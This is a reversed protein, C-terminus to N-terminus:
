CLFPAKKEWLQFPLPMHGCPLGKKEAAERTTAGLSPQSPFEASLAQSCPAASIQATSTNADEPFKAGPNEMIFFKSFSKVPSIGRGLSKAQLLILLLVAAICPELAVELTLIVWCKM